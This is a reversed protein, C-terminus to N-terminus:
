KKGSEDGVMEEVGRCEVGEEPGTMVALMM